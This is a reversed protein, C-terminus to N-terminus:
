DRLLKKIADSVWQPMTRKENLYHNLTSPKVGIRSAIWRQTIGREKIRQKLIM